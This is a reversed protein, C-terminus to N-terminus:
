EEFGKKPITQLPAQMTIKTGDGPTSQIHFSGHTHGLRERISFLGFSMRKGQVSELASVDFGKGDDEVEILVTDGDRRVRIFVNRAAAHKVANILLERTARYLLVKTQESLPGDGNHTEFHCQISEQRNFQEALEELAAELGFTYLTSPSLDFTLSRTQQIAEEIPTKARDLKELLTEPLEKRLVGLERKSFALSQGISDHLATAIRRREREETLLLEETLEALQRQNELIKQEQQKRVTIDRIALLIMETNQADRRIRRANLRMIRRGILEFDHEVEFEEFSTNHPLIDELLTRLEPLDWQRNGIEYVARGETEEPAVEFTEYFARNASLVRLESDLVVLAERITEIVNEAFRRAEAIMQDLRKHETIDREIELIATPVGQADRQLAWRSSVILTQGSRTTHTLEGNWQGEKLLGAGIDTLNRPFRTNLLEYSIRGLAEDKTWGYTQEAGRNWFIITGEMDTVIITDYALNLLEAQQELEIANDRLRAEAVKRQTIDRMVIQTAPKNQYTIPMASLEVDLASGDRRVVKAETVRLPRRRRRLFDLQRETRQRYDPHVLDLVPKGILDDANDAMLLKCATANVFLVTGECEVGIGDPSLEVLTRYRQESERICDQYRKRERTDIGIGIYSGDSLRVHAWSSAVKQGSESQVVLDSWGPHAAVRQEWAMQRDAPDPYCRQAFDNRQVDELSYGLVKRFEENILATRGSAEYFCLMVPINDIITQLRENQREIYQQAKIRDHVEEQLTGVAQRLEATRENVQAELNRRAERLAEEVQQQETIDIAATRCYAVQEGASVEIMSRSRLRIIRDSSGDQLLRITCEHTTTTEVAAQRHRRFADKDPGAVFLNFPKGILNQRNEHLMSAATLNMRAICGKADFVFYGIPAFDFLDAYKVRSQELEIQSHRLQENQMELEIEHVRLEHILSAVDAESMQHLPVSEFRLRKEAEDRLNRTGDSPSQKDM